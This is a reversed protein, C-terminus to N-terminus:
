KDGQEDGIAVMGESNTLKADCVRRLAVVERVQECVAPFSQEGRSDLLAQLRQNVCHHRLKEPRIHFAFLLCILLLINFLGAIVKM